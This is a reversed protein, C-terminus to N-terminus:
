CTYYLYTEHSKPKMLTKVKLKGLRKATLYPVTGVGGAKKIKAGKCTKLLEKAWGHDRATV